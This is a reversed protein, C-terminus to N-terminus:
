ENEYSNHLDRLLSTVVLESTMGDRFECALLKSVSAASLLKWGGFVRRMEMM